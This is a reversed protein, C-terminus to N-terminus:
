QLAELKNMADNAKNTFEKAKEADATLKAFTTEMKKQLTEIKDIDPAEGATIMDSLITNMEQASSITKETYKQSERIYTLAENAYKNADGTVKVTTGAFESILSSEEDLIQQAKNLQATIKQIETKAKAPNEVDIKDFDIAKIAQELQNDKDIVKNWSGIVAGIDGYGVCGATVTAILTVALFLSVQKLKNM